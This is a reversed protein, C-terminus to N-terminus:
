GGAGSGPQARVASIAAVVENTVDKGGKLNTILMMPTYILGWPFGWWGFLLSILAYPLAKMAVSEGPRVYYVCSSRRFTLLIISVCYEFVVFKAGQKVNFGLQEVTMDGLGKIEM